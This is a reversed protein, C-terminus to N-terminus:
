SADAVTIWGSSIRKFGDRQKQDGQWVAFTVLMPAALDVHHEGASTIARSLVVTWEATEASYRATASVDQSDLKTTSGFGGAALNQAQESGAKWYWINVPTAQTGMMFSTQQGGQLAFQVAVGDSFRDYANVSNDTADRWRLRILVKDGDSAVKVKLPLSPAKPDVRLSVSQHVAPAMLTDVQYEAVDNWQPANPDSLDSQVTTMAMTGGPAVSIAVDSGSILNGSCGVLLLLSSGLLGKILTNISM